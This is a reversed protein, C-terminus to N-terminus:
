TPCLLETEAPLRLAVKILQRSACGSTSTSHTSASRLMGSAPRSVPSIGEREGWALEAM